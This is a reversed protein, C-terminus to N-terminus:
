CIRITFQDSVSRLGKYYEVQEESTLTEAEVYVKGDRSYGFKDILGQAAEDYFAGRDKRTQFEKTLSDLYEQKEGSFDSQRGRSKKPQSVTKKSGKVM